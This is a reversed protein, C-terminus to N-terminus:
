RRSRAAKRRKSEGPRRRVKRVASGGEANAAKGRCSSISAAYSSGEDTATTDEDSQVPQTHGALRGVFWDEENPAGVVTRSANGPRREKSPRMLGMLNTPEDTVNFRANRNSVVLTEDENGNADYGSQCDMSNTEGNDAVRGGDEHAPAHLETDSCEMMGGPLSDINRQSGSPKPSDSRSLDDEDKLFGELGDWPTSLVIGQIKERHSHLISMTIRQHLFKDCSGFFYTM